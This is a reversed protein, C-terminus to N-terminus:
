EESRFIWHKLFRRLFCTNKEIFKSISIYLIVKGLEVRRYAAHMEKSNPTKAVM